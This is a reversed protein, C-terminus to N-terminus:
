RRAHLCRRRVQQHHVAPAYVLGASPRRCTSDYYIGRRAFSVHLKHQIATGQQEHAGAPQPLFAAAGYRKFGTAALPLCYACSPGATSTWATWATSATM